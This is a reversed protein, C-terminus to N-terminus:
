ETRYVTRGGMITELVEIERIGEPNELPNGSLIVLDALKGEEISGRTDEMHLQWAADITVARLAQRPSIRQDLDPNEDYVPTNTGYALRNVAAWMLLLPDMPVVPSDTHITFPLGRKVASGAPSMRKAREPGMFIEMHRDGWYYTHLSFFSPIMGLTKMRDLQDDRAMQAHIVIPRMDERTWNNQAQEFGNIIMEIAADGNGHVAIQHGAQHFYTMEANLEAQTMRPYGCYGAPKGEPIVYYPESLYGSYAQISGDAVLKMAGVHFRETNMSSVDFSGEVIEHGVEATPWVVVRV